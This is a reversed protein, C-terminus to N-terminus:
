NKQKTWKLLRILKEQFVSSPFLGDIRSGRVKIFDWSHCYFIPEAYLLKIFKFYLKLLSVPPIRLTLSTFPLLFSSTPKEILNKRIQWTRRPSFFCRIWLGIKKPFFILQLLNLPTYSSDYEFNYKELLNLTSDDISHQPARFGKPKLNFKKFIRLSEKIEYEKEEFSLSDFRKHTLGHFSIEWGKKNLELFIEPYKKICDSTVFLIPKINYKSFISEATKLGTTIGEYKGTHLDPEVDITFLIKSNAM